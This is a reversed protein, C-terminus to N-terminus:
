DGKRCLCTRDQKTGLCGAPRKKAGNDIPDKCVTPVFSQCLRRLIMANFTRVCIPCRPDNQITAAVACVPLLLRRSCEQKSLLNIFSSSWSPRVTTRSKSSPLLVPRPMGNVPATTPSRIMQAASTTHRIRAYSDAEGLDGPDTRILTKQDVRRCDAACCSGCLCVRDAVPDRRDGLWAAPIGCSKGAGRSRLM